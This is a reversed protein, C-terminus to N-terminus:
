RRLRRDQVAKADFTSLDQSKRDRPPQRNSLAQRTFSGAPTGLRLGIQRRLVHSRDREDALLEQVPPGSAEQELLRQLCGADEGVDTAGVLARPLSSPSIPYWPAPLMFEDPLMVFPM